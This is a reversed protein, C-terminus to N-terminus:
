EIKLDKHTYRYQLQMTKNLSKINVVEGDVLNIVYKGQGFVALHYTLRTESDRYIHIEPESTIHKTLSLTYVIGLCKALDCYYNDALLTWPDPWETPQGSELYYPTFPCTQWFEAVSEAAQDLELEELQKRFERWHSIRESAKLKWM